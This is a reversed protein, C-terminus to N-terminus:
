LRQQLGKRQMRRGVPKGVEAVGVANCALAEVYCRSMRVVGADRCMAAGRVLPNDGLEERPRGLHLFFGLREAYRCDAAVESPEGVGCTVFVVVQRGVLAPEQDPAM